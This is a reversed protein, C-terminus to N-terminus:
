NELPLTFSFTSGKGFETEVGVDGGHEVVIKRVIGLGLGTSVEGATPRVSTRSYEGFLNPVEKEPIGQGQDAVEIKLEKMMRRARVTVHTSPHSYKIANSIFNDLAQRLRRIDGFVSVNEADDEIDMALTINKSKAVLRHAKVAEDIMGAARFPAKNLRIKGTEIANTDFVDNILLVASEGASIIYEVVDRQEALRRIEDDERLITAFGSIAAIPNKLEHMTKLQVERIQLEREKLARERESELLKTRTEIVKVLTLSLLWMFPLADFMEVVDWLTVTSHGAAVFFRIMTMFLYLYIIYGSIVAPYKIPLGRISTLLSRFTGTTNPSDGSSPMM